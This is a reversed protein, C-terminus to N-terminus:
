AYHMSPAIRENILNPCVTSVRYNRKEGVLEEKAKKAYNSDPRRKLDARMGFCSTAGAIKCYHGFFFPTDIIFFSGNHKHRDNKSSLLRDAIAPQFSSLVPVIM